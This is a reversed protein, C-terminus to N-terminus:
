LIPSHLNRIPSKQAARDHAYAPDGLPLECMLEGPALELIDGQVIHVNDNLAFEARLLPILRDDLEVAVVRGAQAALRATLTGLGPGVELVTDDRTLDAAAVIRDLYSEDVLFNQGLSKKPDIGARRLLQCFIPLPSQM